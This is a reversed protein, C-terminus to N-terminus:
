EFLYAHSGLDMLVLVFSKERIQSDASEPSPGLSKTQGYIVNGIGQMTEKFNITAINQMWHNEAFLYTSSLRLIM